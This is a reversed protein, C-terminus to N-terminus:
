KKLNLLMEKDNKSVRFSDRCKSIAKNQTFSNLNNSKLFNLTKDRQKVFLEALLWANIMNVYYNKEKNFENLVQFIKDTYNCNSTFEFMIKIGARRVFPKASKVFEKALNFCEEEGRKEVNFKLIDCLAWNDIKNAYITLYKKFENFNKIKCILNGNIMAVTLNDWQWLDVFSLFDGKSIEKVILKVEKSPVALCQMKTNVIRKEWEAKEKGKSFHTLYNLFEISDKETWKEKILEM